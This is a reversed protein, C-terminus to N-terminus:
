PDRQARRERCCPCCFQHSGRFMASGASGLVHVHFAWFYSFDSERVGSRMCVQLPGATAEFATLPLSALVQDLDYAILNTGEVYM